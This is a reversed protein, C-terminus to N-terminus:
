VPEPKVTLKFTQRGTRVTRAPAFASRIREPWATYARESVKLSVELYEAPDEGSARITEALQALQEQDWEVRKPLDVTVEVDGDQFRVTGTDKGAAGRAAIARQEYRLAIAGDIWDLLRKAAEQAERADAQLLALMDAPLKIVEGIPMHRVSELTPRNILHTV